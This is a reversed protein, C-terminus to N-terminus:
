SRCHARWWVVSHSLKQQGLPGVRSNPSDDALPCYVFCQKQPTQVNGNLECTIRGMPFSPCPMPSLSLYTEELCQGQLLIGFRLSPFWWSPDATRSCTDRGLPGSPLHSSKPSHPHGFGRHSKICVHSHRTPGKKSSGRQGAEGDLTQTDATSPLLCKRRPQDLRVRSPSAYSGVELLTRTMVCCQIPFLM